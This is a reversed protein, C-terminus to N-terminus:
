SNTTQKPPGFLAAYIVDDESETGAPTAGPRMQEVALRGPTVPVVPPTTVAAQAALLAAVKQAKATVQEETGDGLLDFHEAPIGHTAAAKYRIAENRATEADRQAQAATEQLRQTESKSADELAAFQDAKPKYEKARQEWKRAEAKWDTESPVQAPPEPSAIPEAAPIPEPSPALIPESMPPDGEM